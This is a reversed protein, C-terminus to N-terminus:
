RREKSKRGRRGKRFFERVPELGAKVTAERVATRRLVAYFTMASRWSESEARVRAAHLRALVLEHRDIVERFARADKLSELMGDVTTERDAQLLDIARCQAALEDVITDGERPLKATHRVEDPTM